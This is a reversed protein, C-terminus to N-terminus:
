IELGEDEEEAGNESHPLLYRFESAKGNPGQDGVRVDGYCILHRHQRVPRTEDIYPAAVNVDAFRVLSHRNIGERRVRWRISVGTGIRQRTRRM